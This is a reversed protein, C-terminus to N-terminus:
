RAEGGRGAHAVAAGSAQTEVTGSAGSAGAGGGAGTGAQGGAGGPAGCTFGVAVQGTPCVLPQDGTCYHGDSRRECFATDFLCDDANAVIRGPLGSSSLCTQGVSDSGCSSIGAWLAGVLGLSVISLIRKM